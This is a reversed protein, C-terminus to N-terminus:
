LVGLQRLLGLTDEEGVEEAIKGGAVRYITIGTWTLRKGTGAVGFFTGQQTGSINWRVIVRDGDALVDEAIIDLDPFAAHLGALRQKFAEAGHTPGAPFLPYYVSLDPTALEDILEPSGRGWVQLFRRALDKNDEAAM